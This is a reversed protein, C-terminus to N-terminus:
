TKILHNFMKQYKQMWPESFNVKKWELYDERFVKLTLSFHEAYNLGHNEYVIRTPIRFVHETENIKWCLYSVNSIWEISYHITLKEWGEIELNLTKDFTPKIPFVKYEM